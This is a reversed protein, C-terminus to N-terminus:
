VAAPAGSDAAALAYEIARPCTMAHGADWAVAFADPGLRSRVLAVQREYEPVESPQLAIGVSEHLMEAAGFLTAAEALAGRQARIQGLCVLTNAVVCRDDLQQALLLSERYRAEALALDGQGQAMEGLNLLAKAMGWPNALERFHALAAEFRRTALAADGQIIAAIGLANITRAEGWRDGAARFFELCADLLALPRRLDDGPMAPRLESTAL